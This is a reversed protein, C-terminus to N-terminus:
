KYILTFIECSNMTIFGPNPLRSGLGKKGNIRDGAMYAFTKSVFYRSLFTSWPYLHPEATLLEVVGESPMTQTGAAVHHSVLTWFELKLSDLM